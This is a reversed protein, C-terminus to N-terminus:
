IDGGMESSIFAKGLMGLYSYQYLNDFNFGCGDIIVQNVGNPDPITSKLPFYVVAVDGDFKQDKAETLKRHIHQWVELPEAQELRRLIETLNYILERRKTTDSEPYKNEYWKLQATLDNVIVRLDQIPNSKTQAQQMLGGMSINTSM